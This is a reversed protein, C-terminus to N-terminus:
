FEKVQDVARSNSTFYLPYKFFFFFCREKTRLYNLLHNNNESEHWAKSFNFTIRGFTLHAPFNADNGVYLLIQTNRLFIHSLSVPPIVGFSIYFSFLIISNYDSCKFHKHM